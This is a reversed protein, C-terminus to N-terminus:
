TLISAVPVRFGPLVTGGEVTGTANLRQVRGDATWIEVRQRRPDILWVMATGHELWGAAKDQVDSWADSPSVIEVAVVPLFPLFGRAPAVAAQAATIVAVDPARVTDASWIFGTDGALVEFPRGVSWQALAVVVARSSRGHEFGTPAMEIIEGHILECRGPHQELDAITAHHTATTM